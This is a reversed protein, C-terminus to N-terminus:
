RFEARLRDQLRQISEFADDAGSDGTRWAASRREVEAAWAPELTQVDTEQDGLSLLLELALGARASEDLRLAANRVHEITTM